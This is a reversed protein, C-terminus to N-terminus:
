EWVTPSLHTKVQVTVVGCNHINLVRLDFVLSPTIKMQSKFCVRAKLKQPTFLAVCQAAARQGPAMNSVLM